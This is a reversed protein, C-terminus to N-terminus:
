SQQSSGQILTQIGLAFLGLAAIAFIVTAMSFMGMVLTRVASAINVAVYNTSTFPKTAFNGVINATLLYALGAIVAAIASGSLCDLASPAAKGESIPQVVAQALEPPSVESPIADPKAEDNMTM